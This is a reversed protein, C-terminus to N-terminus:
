QLITLRQTRTNGAGNQLEVEVANIQAVPGQVPFTARMTFVGGTDSTGFFQEFERRIEARIPAATLLRGSADYFSFLAASMSRTNDFGTLSV